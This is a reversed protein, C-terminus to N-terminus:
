VINCLSDCPLSLRCWRRGNLPFASVNRMHAYTNCPYVCYDRICRDTYWARGLVSHIKENKLMM